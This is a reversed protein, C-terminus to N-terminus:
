VGIEFIENYINLIQEDTMTYLDEYKIDFIEELSANWHEYIRQLILARM